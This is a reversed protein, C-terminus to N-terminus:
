CLVLLMSPFQEIKVYKAGPIVHWVDLLLCTIVPQVNLKMLADVM